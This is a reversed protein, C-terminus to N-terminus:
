NNNSSGSVEISELPTPIPSKENQLFPRDTFQHSYFTLYSINDNAGLITTQQILYTLM